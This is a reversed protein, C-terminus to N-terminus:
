PALAIGQEVFCVVSAERFAGSAHETCVGHEARISRWTSSRLYFHDLDFHRQRVFFLTQFWFRVPVNCQLHPAPTAGRM